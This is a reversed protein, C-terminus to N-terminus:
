YIPQVHEVGSLNEAFRNQENVLIMKPAVPTESAEFAMIIVCNGKATLRAAAPVRALVEEPTGPHMLHVARILPQGDASTPFSRDHCEFVRSFSGEGLFNDPRIEWRNNLVEPLDFSTETTKM